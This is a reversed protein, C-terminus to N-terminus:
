IGICARQIEITQEDLEFGYKSYFEELKYDDEFEVRKKENIISGGYNEIRERWILNRSAYYIWYDLCETLLQRDELPGKKNLPYKCKSPLTM